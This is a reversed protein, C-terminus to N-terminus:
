KSRYSCLYYEKWIVHNLGTPNIDKFPLPNKDYTLDLKKLYGDVM